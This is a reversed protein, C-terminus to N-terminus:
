PRGYLGLVELTVVAGEGPALLTPTVILFVGHVRRLDGGVPRRPEANEEYSLDETPPPRFRNWPIATALGEPTAKLSYVWAETEGNENDARVELNVRVASSSRLGVVVGDAASWDMPEAPRWAMAAFAERASEQELAFAWTIGDPTGEVINRVVGRHNDEFASVALLDRSLPPAPLPPTPRVRAAARAAAPWVYIPNSVLWPPGADRSGAVDPRYVEVRYTGPQDVEEELSSGSTRKVPQGDRRLVLEGELPALSAKLRWPGVEWAAFGGMEATETSSTAVFSFSRADGIASVEVAARGARLARLLETEVSRADGGRAEAPSRDIWVLTSTASLTDAYGPIPGVVPGHADASAIGVRPRAITRPGSDLMTLEDWKELAPWPHALLRAAAYAPDIVSAAVTMAASLTNQRSWAAALNTVEIGDTGGWGGSWAQRAHYPHAVLAWGGEDRVDALAQRATPGFRYRHGPIGLALVHGQETSIEEGVVLLVDGYWGTRPREGFFPNHDSVILFDVGAAAAAEVVVGIDAAGDSVTTHAHIAGRWAFGLEGRAAEFAVVELPAHSAVRVVAITALLAIAAVVTLLFKRRHTM